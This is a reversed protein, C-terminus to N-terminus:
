LTRLLPMRRRNSQPRKDCRWRDAAHGAFRIYQADQFEHLTLATSQSFVM